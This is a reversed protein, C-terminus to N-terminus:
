GARGNPAPAVPRKAARQRRKRERGLRRAEELKQQFATQASAAEPKVPAPLMGTEDVGMRRIAMPTTFFKGAVKTIVLTGDRAATRLTNTTIPGAPWFLAAAEPLTLLEDDTWEEPRPRDVIRPPIRSTRRGPEEACSPRLKEQADVDLSLSTTPTAAPEFPDFLVGDRLQGFDVSISPEAAQTPRASHECGGTIGDSFDMSPFPRREKSTVLARNQTEVEPISKTFPSALPNDHGRGAVDQRLVITRVADRDGEEGSEVGQGSRILAEGPHTSDWTAPIDAVIASQPPVTPVNHQLRPRAVVPDVPPLGPAAARPPPMQVADSTVVAMAPEREQARPQPGRDAHRSKDHAPRAPGVSKAAPVTSLGERPRSGSKRGRDLLRAPQELGLIKFFQAFM